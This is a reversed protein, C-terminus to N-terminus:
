EPAIRLMSGPIELQCDRVEPNADEVRGPVVIAFLRTLRRYGIVAFFAV